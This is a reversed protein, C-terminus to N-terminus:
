TQSAVNSIHRRPSNCRLSFTFQRQRRYLGILNREPPTEGEHTRHSLCFRRFSASICVFYAWVM